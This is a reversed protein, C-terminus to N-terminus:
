RLVVRFATTRCAACSWGSTPKGHWPAPRRDALIEPGHFMLPGGCHACPYRSDPTASVPAEYAPVDVGGFRAAVSQQFRRDAVRAKAVTLLRELQACTEEDRAVLLTLRDVESHARARRQSQFAHRAAHVDM